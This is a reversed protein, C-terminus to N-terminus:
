WQGGAFSHEAVKFPIFIFSEPAFFIFVKIIPVSLTLVIRSSLVSPITFM